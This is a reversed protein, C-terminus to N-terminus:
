ERERKAGVSWTWVAVAVAAPHTEYMKKTNDWKGHQCGSEHERALLFPREDIVVVFAAQFQHM